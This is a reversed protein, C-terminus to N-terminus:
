AKRQECITWTTEAGTLSWNELVCAFVTLLRGAFCHLSHKRWPNSTSCQQHKPHVEFHTRSPHLICRVYIRLISCSFFFLIVAYYNIIPCAKIKASFSLPLFRAAIADSRNDHVANLCFFDSSSARDKKKAALRCSLGAPLGGTVQAFRQCVTVLHRGDGLFVINSSDDAASPHHVVFPVRRCSSKLKGQVLEGYAGVCVGRPPLPPWLGM